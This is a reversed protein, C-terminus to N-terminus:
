NSGIADLLIDAGFRVADTCPLGTETSVRDIEQRVVEDSLTGGNLAIAVVRVNGFAGACSAIAEYLRVAELLPPIKVDPCNRITEQGIKHLLILHTPQSGRILPLTATSGPHLLSGQGEVILLDYDNGHRMVAQEIAGAAYDVRVADLAVGEGSIMMGAQGTAIFKSKVGRRECTRQLELAASMKGIAMDTGVMLVRKCPLSKAAGTGIKLGQPEQRVDWIWQQPQLLGVLEPRKALPTHLGNVISLGGAVAEQLEVFWSEPIIGGSPAIGIALVDPQYSLASEISDVIPVARDIGTLEVLSKGAVTRDIACVVQAPSYRLLTLGTKGQLGTIGEHLLVALRHSSKLM